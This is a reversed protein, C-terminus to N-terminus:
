EGPPRPMAMRDGGGGGSYGGTSVGASGGSTSGSGASGGDGITGGSYTRGDGTRQLPEAPTIQTYGRGNVVRGAGSPAVSGPDPATAAGSVFWPMAYPGYLGYYGGYFWPVVGYRSAGCYQWYSATAWGYPDFCGFLSAAGLIPAGYPDVMASGALPGTVASDGAHRVNFRAPYTLAVMLDIVPEAIGAAALATLTRANLAFQTTGQLIAAQVADPPLAAGAELVDDVTWATHTVTFSRGASQLATRGDDLWQNAAPRYRRVRINVTGGDHVADVDVWVPGGILFAVSSLTRPAGGDCSVEASRYARGGRASWRVRETGTCGDRTVAHPRDNGARNEVDVRQAGVSTVISVGGDAGPLVCTRAGLGASDHESVWCGLWPQWRPDVATAPPAAAQGGGATMALTVLLATTM